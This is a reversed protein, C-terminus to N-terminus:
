RDPFCRLHWMRKSGQCTFRSVLARSSPSIIWRQRVSYMFVMRRNTSPEFDHYGCMFPSPNDQELALGGDLRRKYSDWM